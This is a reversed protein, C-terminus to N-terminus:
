FPAWSTVHGILPTFPPQTAPNALDPDYLYNRTPPAYGTKLVWPLQDATLGSNDLNPCM